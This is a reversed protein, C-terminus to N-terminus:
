EDLAFNICQPTGRTGRTGPTGPTGLHSNRGAATCFIQEIKCVRTSTCVYVRTGTCVHVHTGSGLYGHLVTVCTPVFNTHLAKLTSVPSSQGRTSEIKCLTLPLTLRTSSVRMRDSITTSTASAQREGVLVAKVSFSRKSVDLHITGYKFNSNTNQILFSSFGGGLGRVTGYSARLRGLDHQSRVKESCKPM